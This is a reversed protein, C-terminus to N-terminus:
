VLNLLRLFCVRLLSPSALEQGLRANSCCFPAPCVVPWFRVLYPFRVLWLLCLFPGSLFPFLFPFFSSFNRMCDAFLIRATRYCVSQWEVVVYSPLGGGGVVRLGMESSPGDLSRTWGAQEDDEEVGSSMKRGNRWGLLFFLVGSSWQEMVLDVRVVQSLVGVKSRM